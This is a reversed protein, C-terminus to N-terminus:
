LVPVATLQHEVSAVVEILRPKDKLAVALVPRAGPKVIRWRM